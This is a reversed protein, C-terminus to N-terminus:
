RSGILFAVRAATATVPIFLVTQRVAGSGRTSFAGHYYRSEPLYHIHGCVSYVRQDMSIKKSLIMFLEAGRLWGQATEGAM